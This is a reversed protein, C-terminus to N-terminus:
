WGDDLATQVVVTVRLGRASYEDSLWRAVEKCGDEIAARWNPVYPEINCMWEKLTITHSFRVTVTLKRLNPLDLSPLDLNCERVQAGLADGSSGHELGIEFMRTADTCIVLLDRLNEFRGLLRKTAQDGPRLDGSCRSIDVARVASFGDRPCTMGAKQLAGFNVTELWKPTLDCQWLTDFVNNQLAALITELRLQENGAAAIAPLRYKFEGIDCQNKVLMVLIMMRLEGPLDMLRFVHRRKFRALSAQTARLQASFVALSAIKSHEVTEALESSVYLGGVRAIQKAIDTLNRAVPTNV